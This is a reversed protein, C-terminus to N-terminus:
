KGLGLDELMYKWYWTVGGDTTTKIYWTPPESSPLACISPHGSINPSVNSSVFNSPRVVKYINGGQVCNVVKTSRTLLFARNSGTRSDVGNAV